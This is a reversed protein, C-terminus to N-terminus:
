PQDSGVCWVCMTMGRRLAGCDLGNNCMYLDTLGYYLTSAYTTSISECSQGDWVNAFKYCNPISWQSYKNVCLSIGYSAVINNCNLTPNIRQLFSTGGMSSLSYLNVVSTCTDGARLTYYQGCIALYPAQAQPEDGPFLPPAPAPMEPRPPRNPFLPPPPPPSKGCPDKRVDLSIASQLQREACHPGKCETDAVAAAAGAGDAGDTAELRVTQLSRAAEAINGVLLCVVLLAFGRTLRGLGAM